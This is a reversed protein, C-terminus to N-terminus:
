KKRENKRQKSIESFSQKGFSETKSASILFAKDKQDLFSKNESIKSKQIEPDALGQSAQKAKKKFFNFKM